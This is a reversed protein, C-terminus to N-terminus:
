RRHLRQGLMEGNDDRLQGLNEYHAQLAKINMDAPPLEGVGCRGQGLRRTPHSSVIAMSDQGLSYGLLKAADFVHEDDM